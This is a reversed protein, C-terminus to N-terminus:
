IICARSTASFLQLSQIKDHDEQDPVCVLQRRLCNRKGLIGSRTSFAGSATNTGNLWPLIPLLSRPCHVENLVDKSAGRLLITCAKPDKCDVIFSYFEDGIKLVEFLGAKTGIDQDRIEEVRCLWEQCVHMRQQFAMRQQLVSGCNCSVDSIWIDPNLHRSPGNLLRYLGHRLVHGISMRNAYQEPLPALVLSCCRHVITAGTARAIRNNDTKRLRRVASIGAKTLFHMALDSLGKETIVLDPKHKSIEACQRDIYDEELKM